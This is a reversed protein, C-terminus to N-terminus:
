RAVTRLCAEVSDRLAALNYGGELLLALRGNNGPTAHRDALAKVKACLMAFGETTVNMGGLPDNTHADFGASVLILEPKFREAASALIEDFVKAYDADTSGAPLPVNLTFGEGPTGPRGREKAAGTGPYQPWQHVSFFFVDSREDFIHQTGNGHHVDWDVILVRKLQHTSIAHEAAIAINNLFCFGMAEDREAHHGPPRILALAAQSRGSMVADVAQIAGGAALYAADITEPSHPTDADIYGRRGRALDLAALHSRSHVRGAEDHTAPRAISEVAFKAPDLTRAMDLLVRLRDPREPHAPGTDHALLRDDIIVTVPLM